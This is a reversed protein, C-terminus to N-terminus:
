HVHFRHQVRSNGGNHRPRSVAVHDALLAGAQIRDDGRHREHIQSANTRTFNHIGESPLFDVFSDVCM